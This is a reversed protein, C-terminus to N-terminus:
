IVMPHPLDAADAVPMVTKATVALRKAVSTTESASAPRRRCSMVPRIMPWTKGLIANEGALAAGSTMFRV